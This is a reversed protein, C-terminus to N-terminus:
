TKGDGTSGGRQILIRGKISLHLGRREYNNVFELRNNAHAQSPATPGAQALRSESAGDQKLARRQGRVACFIFTM